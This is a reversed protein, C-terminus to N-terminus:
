FSNDSEWVHSCSFIRAIQLAKIRQFHGRRIILKKTSGHYSVLDM